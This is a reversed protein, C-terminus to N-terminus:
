MQQSINVFHRSMNLYFDQREKKLHRLATRARLHMDLCTTPEWTNNITTIFTTHLAISTENKYKSFVQEGEWIYKNKGMHIGM